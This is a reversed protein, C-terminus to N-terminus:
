KSKIPMPMSDNSLGEILRGLLAGLLSADERGLVRTITSLNRDHLARMRPELERGEQTLWVRTARGDQPCPRRTVLQANELKQVLHVVAVHTVKARQALEGITWGERDYLAFLILGSGSPAVGDLEEAAYNADLASKWVMWSRLLRRPLEDLHVSPPQPSQSPLDAPIPPEKPM